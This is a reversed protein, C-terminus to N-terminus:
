DDEKLNRDLSCEDSKFNLLSCESQFNVLRNMEVDKLTRLEDFLIAQSQMSPQVTENTSKEDRCLHERIFNDMM